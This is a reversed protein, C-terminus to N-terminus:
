LAHLHCLSHSPRPHSATSSFLAIRSTCARRPLFTRTASFHLVIPPKHCIAFFLVPHPPLSYSFHPCTAPHGAHHDSLNICYFILAVHTTYILWAHSVGGPHKCLSLIWWRGFTTDQIHRTGTPALTKGVELCHHPVAKPTHQPRLSPHLILTSDCVCLRSEQVGTM